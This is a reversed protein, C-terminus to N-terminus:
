FLDQREIYNGNASVSWVRRGLIAMTPMNPGKTYSRLYTGTSVNFCDIYSNPTSTGGVWIEANGSPSINAPVIIPAHPALSNVHTYTQAVTYSSMDIKVTKNTGYLACYLYTDDKCFWNPQNGSGSLTLTSVLAATNKNIFVIKNTDFCAIALIDGFIEIKFPKDTTGLTYIATLTGTAIEYKFVKNNAGSHVSDDLCFYIFTGDSVANRMSGNGVTVSSVLTMTDIDVIELKCTGALYLNRAVYANGNDICYGNFSDGGAYTGVAYSSILSGDCGSYLELKANGSGGMNGGISSLLLNDGYKQLEYPYYNVNISAPPACLNLAPGISVACLGQSSAVSSAGTQTNTISLTNSDLDNKSAATSGFSAYAGGSNVEANETVGGWTWTPSGSSSRGFAGAIVVGGAATAITTDLQEGTLTTDTATAIVTTDAYLVSYVYIAIRVGNGGSFSPVITATTGTPVRAKFIRIAINGTGIAASTLSTAAIGQITMSTVAVSATPALSYCVVYIDRQANATGINSTGANYASMSASAMGADNSALQSGLFSVEVPKKHIVTLGLFAAGVLATGYFLNRIRTAGKCIM